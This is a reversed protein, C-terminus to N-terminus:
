SGNEPDPVWKAAACHFKLGCEDSHSKLSQSLHPQVRYAAFLCLLHCVFIGLCVVQFWVLELLPPLTARTPWASNVGIGVISNRFHSDGIQL